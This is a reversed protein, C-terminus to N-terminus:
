LPPQKEERPGTLLVAGRDVCAETPPLDPLGWMSAFLFEMTCFSCFVLFLWSNILSSQRDLGRSVRVVGTYSPLYPASLEAVGSRSGHLCPDARAAEQPGRSMSCTTSSNSGKHPSWQWLRRLPRSHPQLQPAQTSGVSPQLGLSPVALSPGPPPWRISGEAMGRGKPTALSTM